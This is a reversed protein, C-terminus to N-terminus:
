KMTVDPQLQCVLGFMDSWGHAILILMFSRSSSPSLGNQKRLDWQSIYLHIEHSYGLGIKADVLAVCRFSETTGIHSSRRSAEPIM